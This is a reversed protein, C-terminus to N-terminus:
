QRVEEIGIMNGHFFYLIYFYGADPGYVLKEVEGYQDIWSKETAVPNGCEALVQLKELGEEMMLNGCRFSSGISPNLKGAYAERIGIAPLLLMFAMVVIIWGGLLRKMIIGGNPNVSLIIVISYFDVNPKDFAFGQLTDASLGEM